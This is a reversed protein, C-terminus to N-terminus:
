RSTSSRSSRKSRTRWRSVPRIPYFLQAPVTSTRARIRTSTPRDDRGRRGHRGGRLRQLAPRPRPERGRDLVRLPRARPGAPRRRPQGRPRVRRRPVPLRLRVSGHRRREIKGAKTEIEKPRARDARDAAGPVRPPRLPQVPDHLEAPRREMQGNNRIYATRAVVSEARRSSSSSSPSWGSARPTDTSVARYRGPRVGPRRVRAARRLRAGPADRRRRDRRRHRADRGRPVRQAHLPARGARGGGRRGRRRARPAEPEPEARLDRTAERIWLIGFVIAIIAGIAAVPWSIILGVLAVAVGLAFGFPWISPGPFHSSEPSARAARPSIM